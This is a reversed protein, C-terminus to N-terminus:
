LVFVATLYSDKQERQLTLCQERESNIVTKSLAFVATLYCDKHEKFVVTLTSSWKGNIVTRKNKINATLLLKEAQTKQKYERVINIYHPRRQSDPRVGCISQMIQM